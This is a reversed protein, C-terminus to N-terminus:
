PKQVSVLKGNLRLSPMPGTKAKYVMEVVQPPKYMKSIPDDDDQRVQDREASVANPSYGANYLTDNLGRTVWYANPSDVFKFEMGEAEKRQQEITKQEAASMKKDTQALAPASFLAFGLGVVVMSRLFM